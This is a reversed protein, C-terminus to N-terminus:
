YDRLFGGNANRHMIKSVTKVLRWPTFITVLMPVMFLIGIMGTITVRDWYLPIGMMVASLVSMCAIAAIILGMVGLSAPIGSVRCCVARDGPLFAVYQRWDGYTWSDESLSDRKILLLSM